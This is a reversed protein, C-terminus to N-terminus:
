GTDSRVWCALNNKAEKIYSLKKKQGSVGGGERRSQGVQCYLHMGEFDGLGIFYQM